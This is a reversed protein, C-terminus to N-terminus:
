DTLLEAAGKARNYEKKMLKYLNLEFSVGDKTRLSRCVIHSISALRNLGLNLAMGKISHAIRYAEEWEGSDIASNLREDYEGKFFQKIYKGIAHDDGLRELIEDYDEGIVEFYGRASM